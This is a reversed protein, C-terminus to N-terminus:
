IDYYLAFEWPHAATGCGLGREEIKYSDLDRDRGLHVCGRQPSLTTRRLRRSPKRLSGPTHPVKATEEPPLDYIDKDLPDGPDVKNQIGDLMAM